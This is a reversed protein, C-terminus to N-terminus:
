AWTGGRFPSEPFCGPLGRSVSPALMGERSRFSEPGTCLPSSGFRRLMGATSSSHHLEEHRNMGGRGGAALRGVAGGEGALGCAAFRGVEFALEAVPVDLENGDAACDTGAEEHAGALGDGGGAGGHDEHVHDDPEHQEEDHPGHAFQQEAVEVVLGEAIERGVQQPRPCAEERPPGVPEAPYDGPDRVTMAM